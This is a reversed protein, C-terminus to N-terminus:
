GHQDQIAQIKPYEYVTAVEEFRPAPLDIAKTGIYLSFVASEESILSNPLQFLLEDGGSYGNQDDVDDVQSPILTNGQMVYSGDWKTDDSEDAPTVLGFPDVSEPFNNAIESLKVIIPTGNVLTFGTPSTVTININYISDDALVNNSEATKYLIPSGNIPLINLLVIFLSFIMFMAISKNFFRM